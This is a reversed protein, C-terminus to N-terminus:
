YDLLIGLAGPSLSSYSFFTGRTPNDMSQMIKWVAFEALRDGAPSLSLDGTVGMLRVAAGARLSRVADDYSDPGYVLPTPGPCPDSPRDKRCGAAVERVGEKVWAAPSPGLAVGPTAAMRAAGARDQALAALLVADFANGAFDGQAAQWRDRWLESFFEVRNPDLSGPDTVYLNKITTFNVQNTLLSNRVPDPAVWFVDRSGDPLSQARISWEQLLLAGDTAEACLFVVSDAFTLAPDTLAGDPLQAFAAAGSQFLTEVAAGFEQPVEPDYAVAALVQMTYLNVWANVLVDHL